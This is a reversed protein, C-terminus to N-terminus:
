SKTTKILGIFPIANIKLKFMIKGNRAYALIIENNIQLKETKKNFKNM